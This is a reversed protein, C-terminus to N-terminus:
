HCTVSDLSAYQRKSASDPVSYEQPTGAKLSTSDSYSEFAGSDATDSFSVDVRADPCDTDSTLTWTWGDGSSDVQVSVGGGADLLTAPVLTSQVRNENQTTLAALVCAVLVLAGVVSCVAWWVGKQSRSPIPTRTPNPSAGPAASPRAGRPPTAAPRQRWATRERQTVFEEFTM